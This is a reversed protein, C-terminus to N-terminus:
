NSMNFHFLFFSCRGVCYYCEVIDLSRSFGPPFASTLWSADGNVKYIYLTWSPSRRWWYVIATKSHRSHGDHTNWFFLLIVLIGSMRELPTLPCFEIIIHHCDDSKSVSLIAHGFFNVVKVEDVIASPKQLHIPILLNEILRSLLNM